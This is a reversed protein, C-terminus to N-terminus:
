SYYSSLTYDGSLPGSFDFHGGVKQRVSKKGEKHNAALKLGEWGM